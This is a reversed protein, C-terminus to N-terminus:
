RERLSEDMEDDVSGATPGDGTVTMSLAGAEGAAERAGLACVTYAGGHELDVEFTTIPATDDAGEGEHDASDNDDGAESVELTYQGAPLAVYDTVDGFSVDEYLSLRGDNASVSVAPADAAAHDLRVLASGADTLILPRVTETELDGIAAITYFARGFSIEDEFVVTEADGAATIAVTHTDPEIELYSSIEDFAVASLVREDDFYVDVDPADASFHAVRVAATAELYDDREDTEHEDVALATGTMASAAGLAGLTELTSRRSLTM